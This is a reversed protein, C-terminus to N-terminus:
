ASSAGCQIPSLDTRCVLGAPCNSDDDASCPLYCESAFCESRHGPFRPCDGADRCARACVGADSCRDVNRACGASANCREFIRRRCDNVDCTDDSWNPASPDCEEGSDIQGNGCGETVQCSGYLSCEEFNATDCQRDTECEACRSTLANCYPRGSAGACDRDNLCEVCSGFRDCRGMSLLRRCETGEPSRREACTTNAVNCYSERCPLLPSECEDEVEGTCQVCQGSSALCYPTEGSCAVEEYGSGDPKCTQASAEECRQVGPACATCTGQEASCTGRDCEREQEFATQDSNCKRLVDGECSFQDPLCAAATCARADAKCLASTECTQEANWVTGDDSCRELAAGRCRYKGPRCPACRRMPLGIQCQVDSECTDQAAITGDQNCVTMEFSECVALGGNGRCIPAIPACEATETCVEDGSCADIRTWRGDECRERSGDAADSCRAEGQDPCALEDNAADGAGGDIPESEAGSMGASGIDTKGVGAAGARASDGARRGGSAGAGADGSVRNSRSGTVGGQPPVPKSEECAALLCLGLYLWWSRTRAM